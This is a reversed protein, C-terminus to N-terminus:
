LKIFNKILQLGAKQSKEPHFQVGVINNKQIVSPFKIGYSTYAVVNNKNMIDFYYSNLFYFDKKEIGNMIDNTKKSLLLNNWGVQPLPLKKNNIIKVSGEIWGLGNIFTNEHGNTAMLQMGVCIGLIPKKKNLVENNLFDIPISESLKKIAVDFSGVGPLILHTANLIDKKKRSYMFNINNKKLINKLSFVNGVGYDLICIKEM